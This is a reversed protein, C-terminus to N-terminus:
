LSARLPVTAAIANPIQSALLDMSETPSPPITASAPILRAPIAQSRKQATITVPVTIALAVRIIVAHSASGELAMLTLLAYTTTAIFVRATETQQVPNAVPSLAHAAVV